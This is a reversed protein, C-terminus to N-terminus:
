IVEYAIMFRAEWVRAVMFDFKRVQLNGSSWCFEFAWDVRVADGFRCVATTVEPKQNRGFRGM